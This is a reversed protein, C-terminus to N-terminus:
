DGCVKASIRQSRIPRIKPRLNAVQSNVCHKSLLVASLVKEMVMSCALAGSRKV